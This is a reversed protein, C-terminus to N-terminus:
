LIVEPCVVSYYTSANLTQACRHSSFGIRNGFLSDYAAQQFANEYYIDTWYEHCFEGDKILVQLSTIVRGTNM